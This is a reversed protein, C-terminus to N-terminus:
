RSHRTGTRAARLFGQRSAPFTNILTFARLSHPFPRWPAERTEMNDRVITRETHFGVQAM